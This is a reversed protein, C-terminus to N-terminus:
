APTAQQLCETAEKMVAAYHEKDLDPLKEAGYKRMIDRMADTGSVERVKALAARVETIDYDPVPENPLEPSVVVSESATPEAPTVTVETKKGPVVEGYFSTVNPGAAKLAELLEEHSSAEVAMNIKIM